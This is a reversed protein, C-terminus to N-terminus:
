ALVDRGALAASLPAMLDTVEAFEEKMLTELEQLRETRTQQVCEKIARLLRGLEADDHQSLDFVHLIYGISPNAKAYPAIAPELKRWRDRLAWLTAESPDDCEHKGVICSTLIKAIRGAGKSSRMVHGKPLKQRIDEVDRGTLWLDGNRHRPSRPSYYLDPHQAVYKAMLKELRKAWGSLSCQSYKLSVTMRRMLPEAQLQNGRGPSVNWGAGAKERESHSSYRRPHIWAVLPEIVAGIKADTVPPLCGNWYSRDYQAILGLSQHLLDLAGPVSAGTLCIPTAPSAPAPWRVKNDLPLASKQVRKTKM